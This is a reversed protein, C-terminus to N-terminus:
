LMLYLGAAVAARIVYLLQATFAHRNTGCASLM